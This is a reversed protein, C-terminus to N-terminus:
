LDQYSCLEIGYGKLQEPMTDDILMNLETQRQPNLDFPTGYSAPSGPHTMLETTGEPLRSLIHRLVKKSANGSMALGRFHDTSRIGNASYIPRAAAAMDSIAQSKVLQEETINWGVPPLPEYPIRVASIAYRDLIPILAHIVVPHIHIHHHSDLHTPQGHNDLFWEIQARAEREVHEREVTGDDMLRRLEHRDRFMGSPSLLTSVHEPKSLPFDETFNLHLGTPLGRERAHKAAAASSSQNVVLSANRVIGQEFGIFIGHTRATNIGFDDANIILRKM